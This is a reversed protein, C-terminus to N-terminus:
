DNQNELIEDLASKMKVACDMCYYGTGTPGNNISIGIINAGKKNKNECCRCLERGSSTEAHPLAVRQSFVDGALEQIKEYKRAVPFQWMLSQLDDLSMKWFEKIQDEKNLKKLEEFTM